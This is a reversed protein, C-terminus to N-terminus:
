PREPTIQLILLAESEVAPESGNIEGRMRITISKVTLPDREGLAVILRSLLLTGANAVTRTVADAVIAGLDDTGVRYAGFSEVGPM